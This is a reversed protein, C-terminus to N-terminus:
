GELAEPLQRLSDLTRFPVDIAGEVLEYAWTLHYPVHFARAGIHAVPLVDSRLSNGVTSGAPGTM